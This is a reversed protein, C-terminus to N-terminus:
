KIIDDRADKGVAAAGCWECAGSPLIRYGCCVSRIGTDFSECKCRGASFGDPVVESSGRPGSSPDNVFIVQCHDLNGWHHSKKHDCYACKPDNDHDEDDERENSREAAEVNERAVESYPDDEMNILSVCTM